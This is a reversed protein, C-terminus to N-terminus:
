NDTNKELLINDISKIHALLKKLMININNNIDILQVCEELGLYDIFIISLLDLPLDLIQM